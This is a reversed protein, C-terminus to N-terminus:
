PSTEERRLLIATELHHTQPFMDFLEIEKIRFQHAQLLALDRALTAPDCSVYILHAAGLPALADIVRSCGQRPPDLVITDFRKGEGLLQGAGKEASSRLFHCNERGNERANDEAARIAARQLDVGYVEEAIISLPVAFNGMGCFLDLVRKSQVKQTWDLVVRILARNIGANVQTFGGPEVAFRLSRSVPRDLQLSFGIPGRGEEASLVTQRGAEEEVLITELEDIQRYIEELDKKEAPRLKRRWKLIAAARATRENKLLAIEEVQQLLMTFKSSDRLRALVTNLMPDAILCAAIDVVRHSNKRHYGIASADSDVHLRIRQRYGFQQESAVVEEVRDLMSQALGSHRFHDIVMLRKEVLQRRYDIHQLDCGGCEDYYPCPPQIRHPSSEHIAVQVAVLYDKKRLVTRVAVTEGPLVGAVLVVKGSVNRALGFGGMVMKEITVEM